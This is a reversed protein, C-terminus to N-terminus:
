IGSVTYINADLQAVLQGGNVLYPRLEVDAASLLKQYTEQDLKDLEDALILHTKIFSELSPFCSVGLREHCIYENIDTALLMRDMVGPVGLSWPASLNLAARSGVYKRVLKILASYAKSRDLQAWVAIVVLGDPKCVRLMEKIAAVRNPLFMLSFQCIVRDFENSEFPLAEADGLQWTIGRSKKEAVALMKESSDLGVVRGSLGTELQAAKTLSGTGCAVDLVHHGLDIESTAAVRHAWQGYIAPVLLEEHLRVFDDTIEPSFRPEAM